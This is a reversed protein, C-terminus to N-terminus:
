DDSLAPLGSAKAAFHAKIRANGAFTDETEEPEELNLDGASVTKVGFPRLLDAIERLKGRNHSAIVLKEGSFRRM